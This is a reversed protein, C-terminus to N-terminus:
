RRGSLENNSVKNKLEEKMHEDLIRKLSDNMSGTLDMKHSKMLNESVEKMKEKTTNEMTMENKGIM